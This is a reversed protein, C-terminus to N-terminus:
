DGNFLKDDADEFAFATLFPGHELQLDHDGREPGKGEEISEVLHGIHGLLMEDLVALVQFHVHAHFSLVNEV